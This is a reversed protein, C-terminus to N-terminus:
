AVFLNNLNYALPQLTGQNEDSIQGSKTRVRGFEEKGPVVRKVSAVM